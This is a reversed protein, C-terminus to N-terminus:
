HFHITWTRNKMKERSPHRRSKKSWKVPLQTNRGREAFGSIEYRRIPLSKKDNRTIKAVTTTITKIKPGNKPKFEFVTRKPVGSNKIIEEGLHKEIYEEVYKEVAKELRKKRVDEDERLYSSLAKEYINVGALEPRNENEVDTAKTGLSINDDDESRDSKWADFSESSENAFEGFTQATSRGLIKHIDDSFTFSHNQTNNLSKWVTLDRFKVSSPQQGFTVKAREQHLIKMAKKNDRKNSRIDNIKRLVQFKETEKTDSPLSKGNVQDNTSDLNFVVSTNLKDTETKQVNSKRFVGLLNKFFQKGKTIFNFTPLMNVNDHNNSLGKQFVWSSELSDKVLESPKLSFTSKTSPMQLKHINSTNTAGGYNLSSVLGSNQPLFRPIHPSVSSKHVDSVTDVDGQGKNKVSRCLFIGLFGCLSSPSPAPSPSTGSALKAAPQPHFPIVYTPKKIPIWESSSGGVPPSARGPTRDSVDKRFQVSDNPPIQWNENTFHKVKSKSLSFDNGVEVSIGNDKKKSLSVDEGSVNWNAQALGKYNTNEHQESSHLENFEIENNTIIFADTGGEFGNRILLILVGFVELHIM